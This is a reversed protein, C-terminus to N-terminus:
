DPMNRIKQIISSSIKEEKLLDIIDKKINNSVEREIIGICKKGYFTTFFSRSEVWKIKKDATIIRYIYKPAIQPWSKTEIVDTQADRDDPHVCNNLWFDPDKYFHEATYGCLKYVLKSVFLLKFSPPFERIWIIDNSENIANELLIRKERQSKQETIDRIVSISCKQNKFEKITKSIELWRIEGDPKKIRCERFDPWSKLDAYKKERKRDEHHISTEIFGYMNKNYLEKAEYGFIQEAAFSAYLLKYYKLDFILLCENISNICIELIERIEGAKKKDTIDHIIGIIGAIKIQSDFIPIKSILGYKKKRTGPIYGETNVAKKGTSLIYADRSIVEKAEQRSFFDHDNKGKISYSSNLGLNSRFANNALLYNQETDKIYIITNISSLIIKSVLTYQKLFKYHSNLKHFVANFRDIINEEENKDFHEWPELVDALKHPSKQTRFSLDSIEETSVGLAEALLPIRDEKPTKTGNEWHWLTTSSIGIKECFAKTKFGTAKRLKEFQKYYFKM